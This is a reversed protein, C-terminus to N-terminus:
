QDGFYVFIVAATSVPTRPRSCSDAARGTKKHGNKM